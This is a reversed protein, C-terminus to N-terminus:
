VKRELMFYNPTYGISVHESPRYSAIVPQVHLNWDRQTQHDGQGFNPQADLSLTGTGWEHILPIPKDLDERDGVDQM